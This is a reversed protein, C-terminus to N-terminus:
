KVGKFTIKEIGPIPSIKSSQSIDIIRINIGKKSLKYLISSSKEDIYASIIVYTCNNRFNKINEELYQSFETKITYDIRASIEMIRKLNNLEPKIKSYYDDVYSMIRSNTWVGTPVGEKIAKNALSALIKIGCEITDKQINEWHRKSCQSNFIIILERESTFDYEKVMLKNMKLSSKWHIDKMRDEVNYERIGKIYLPDKQLWRRVTSDGNFNTIDFNFRGIPIIKPYVLVEIYDEFEKSNVNLGFFDGIKVNMNKILYTGRKGKLTYTRVKRKYGGISYTSIHKLFQGDKFDNKEGNYVIGEPINETVSLFSIPLKKNNEIVISIKFSEDEFIKSSSVERYIKLSEFGHERTRYAIYFVLLISIGLFIYMLIM